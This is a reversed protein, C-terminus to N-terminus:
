HALSSRVAATAAEGFGNVIGTVFVMSLSLLSQQLASPLGIRLTMLATPWHIHRGVWRPAALHNKRRLYIVLAVAATLNSAVAAWATGNLGLRPFGLWGFMLLPDLIATVIVAASQFYLPTKSDGMGQMTNRLLFVAFAGPLALMFIRLYSLAVPFVDAPTDMWRLAQSASLEGAVLLVLGIGVILVISSDIVRRVAEHNKAGMNQSVQINTALTLGAVLAIMAFILPFSVTVAALASTGMFQGVWIANIFSYATQLLSGIFMPLSFALLHRPISGETLDRGHKHQM